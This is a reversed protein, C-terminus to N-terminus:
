EVPRTAATDHKQNPRDMLGLRVVTRIFERPLYETALPARNQAHVLQCMFAHVAARPSYMAKMASKELSRLDGGDGWELRRQLLYWVAAVDDDEKVAASQREYLELFALSANWCGLKRDLMELEMLEETRPDIGYEGDDDVIEQTAVITRLSSARTEMAAIRNRVDEPTM